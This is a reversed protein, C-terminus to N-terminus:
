HKDWLALWADEVQAETAVNPEQTAESGAQIAGAQAAIVEQKLPTYTSVAHAEPSPTTVAPAASNVTSAAPPEAPTTVVPSAPTLPTVPVSYDPVLGSNALAQKVVLPVRAPAQLSAFVLAWGVTQFDESISYIRWFRQAKVEYLYSSPEQTKSDGSSLPRGLASLYFKRSEEDQWANNVLAPEDGNMSQQQAVIRECDGYACSVMGGSNSMTEPLARIVVMTTNPVAQRILRNALAHLNLAM